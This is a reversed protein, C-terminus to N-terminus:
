QGLELQNKVLHYYLGQKDTLTTHNGQEAVIGKDLVVINDADRVTSLRHAIIVVTRNRFFLKLNDMILKENEADLSSTAEDFFIFDPNKYIARAILIRQKQGGSLDMGAKGIKTHYRMPLREIFEDICAIQAAKELRETDIDEQLAINSAITASFIYGDQMVVGCRKRWNETDIQSLNDNGIYVNGQQPVYFALLLKLLSTKGSGSPGVIATIKGLPITMNIDNLVYPNYSGEYKFYVHDLIFGSSLSDSIILNRDKNENQINLIDEMRNYALAADQATNGYGTIQTFASSLQGLIYTITMMVGITIDGQIVFWACGGTIFTDRLIALFSTGSTIGLEYLLSKLSQHNLEKQEREWQLLFSKHAVNIKLEVMGYVLENEINRKKGMRAFIAYNRQKRISLMWRNLNYTLISFVIFILFIYFNYYWLICSYIFLNLVMFLLSSVTHTLFGRITQEDSLRQLLDTGLKTDFLGIPLKVLKWIYRTSIDLGIELGTHSLIYNNVATSFQRGIYLALQGLLLLFVLNIDKLGIGNDMVEQLFFPIFLSCGFTFVSLLLVQIIKKKYSILHHFVGKLSEWIMRDSSEEKQEFFFTQPELVVSIGKSGDSTWSDIFVSEELKIKGYNPDAIYYIMRGRHTKIQYLVVYHEQKWYLIAPLPMEKLKEFELHIPVTQFGLKRCGELLDKLCIGLRTVHCSKKITALSIQKGYYAAVMQICAPGCDSSDTQSRFPFRM